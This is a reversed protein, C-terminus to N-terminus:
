LRPLMLALSISAAGLALSLIAGQNLTVEGSAIPRHRKESHSRDHPLDIIDNIVYISSAGLSFSVVGILVLIFTSIDFSHAAVAPLILLGNKLWQHPRMARLLAVASHGRSSLVVSAPLDRKLKKVLTSSAGAILATRAAQWVPVDAADNGI